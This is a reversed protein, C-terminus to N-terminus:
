IEELQLNYFWSVMRTATSRKRSTSFGVIKCKIIDGSDSICVLDEDWALITEFEDQESTTLLEQSITWIQKFESNAQRVFRPSGNLLMVRGGLNGYETQHEKPNTTFEYYDSGIVSNIPNGDSDTDYSSTKGLQWRTITM